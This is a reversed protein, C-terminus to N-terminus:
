DIIVKAVYNGHATAVSVFYIGASQTLTIDSAQNTVITFENTKKGTINTVTVVAQETVPSSVLLTFIGQNPNPYITIGKGAADVNTVGVNSIITLGSTAACGNGDTVTVAYAGNITVDYTANTAGSIPSGSLLWQYSTYTVSTSLTTGSTIIVPAPLANVMIGVSTICGTPLTYTINVIGASVGTVIGSGVTAFSTNSSSWTGGASGDSLTIQAGGACVDSGGTISVPLPNVTVVIYAACGTSLAYTIASTGTAVGTVEGSGSGITAIASSGSSWVGGSPTVNLTTVVGTCVSDSGTIASPSPNVTVDATNICGTSLTYTITSTGATSGVVIGTVSGITANSNSSSWAGGSPTSNLTTTLGVCVSMTGAISSPNANVTVDATNICGTSLTYTITSTGATSGTVIGTSSGIMANSNSSNWTGGSPTSNLTTTLGACVAMTGTISSPNANVTVDATNICGTSLTYTITSTGATSGTVIGTSSGIMANSNSSSWAGGSPTSNLTTTLGVCVSMTGTISSPNANVTVVATNLCGTSLTYTITSTGATSGTVIGTSSGILANSNSSNWTGGSPTSNLATTLGACVAAIGTISSPNANVTVVATNLCGTSLTYTITSTGATSGTVIGTSSGITANSNSSSWVGGSPTSNLTTTLGACVSLTGTISSPNPNVTVVATNFCGTGVAYTITSTGVTSGTVIGTSSGITANGNSSSWVGAAPTSNLTTTLGVCVNMTGAILSPDANVTVVATNVCGTGLTYTITSTGATSGTVVGTVSGITANSNSSSWTGGSPTSNLTTTLGACVSLTGTISSANPNVTVVVTNICGTSLTYTITSTGTASGTVIGTSSGITANSNSSSWAGGSPTSNLTTTLGVCVAATGTIAAPNDNVTVTTYAACGTGQSYTIISTGPLVGTVLGTGSGVTAITTSGSSWTGGAPTDSLMTNLGVCVNTTGTITAPAADVTIVKTAYSSSTVYSITATGASVGTVTGTSSGVTANASSSSWTGGTVPDTLTTAAGACVINAGYIVSPTNNVILSIAPVLGKQSSYNTSDVSFIFKIGSFASLSNGQDPQSILPNTGSNYDGPWFLNSPDTAGTTNYRGYIRPFSSLEGDCGLFYGEPVQAAIYYWSSSDLLITTGLAGTLTDGMRVKFVGQSSDTAAFSYVGMSVLSLEGNQVFGDAPLGGAGDVWKFAYVNMSSIGTIPGPSSAVSFQVSSIAAGGHAVYFMDGLLFDTAAATGIFTGREPINNVFDYQGKSYVSDTAYFSYTATNDNVYADASDSNITYTLDFRGTGSTTPSFAYEEPAFMAYISDSPHFLSLTPSVDTNIVSASGGTPTYKLTASVTVNTANHAGYNAIFAGDTGNYASPAGSSYLQNYPIACSHWGATGSPVFGLDNAYNQGWPTLSLTVTTGSNYLSDIVKGDAQSIM